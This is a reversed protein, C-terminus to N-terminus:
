KKKLVLNPKKGRAWLENCLYVTNSVYHPSNTIFSSDKKSDYLPDDLQTGSMMAEQSHCIMRGKSPLVIIRVDTVNLREILSLNSVNELETVVKVNLSPHNVIAEPIQSFYMAALDNITTVIFLEDKAEEIMRLIHTYVVAKGSIINFYIRDTVNELQRYQATLNKILTTQKRKLFALHNEAKKIVGEIALNPPIPVFKTPTELTSDVFGKNRLNMLINYVSSRQIDTKTSVGSATSEGNSLLYLYVRIEEDDLGYNHLLATSDNDNLM